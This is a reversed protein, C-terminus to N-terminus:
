VEYRIAEVPDIGAARAAPVYSALLAVVTLLLAVSGFTAPDVPEVGYLLAGLLRTLGFAACLGIAVGVSCLILGHKLVMM